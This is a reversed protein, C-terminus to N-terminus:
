FKNFVITKFLKARQKSKKAMYFFGTENYWRMIYGSTMAEMYNGMCKLDRKELMKVLSNRAKENRKMVQAYTFLNLPDMDIPPNEIFWDIESDQDSDRECTHYVHLYFDSCGYIRTPRYFM